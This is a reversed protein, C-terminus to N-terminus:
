RTYRIGGVVSGRNLRDMLAEFVKEAMDEYDADSDMQDVNVIIDGVNIPSGGQGATDGSLNPMGPIYVRSMMDLTNVLSDFLATQYPTLIREKDEVWALGDSGAIGGTAFPIISQIGTKKTTKQSPHPAVETGNSKKLVDWSNVNFFAGVGEAWEKITNIPGNGKELSLGTIDAISLLNTTKKKSDDTETGPSPDGGGGGGSNSGEAPAIYDYPYPTMDANVAEYAKRLDELQEMWEDVYAEAQLKGAERYKASNKKLFNVIYDDGGAIIEEVEDWYLELEGRMQRLTKKWGNVMTEQTAQTSKAYEEDNAQLWAIIEEDTGMIIEHMEDILQQPHEFLYEYYNNIYEMYDELSEVQQDISEQQAEVEKEALDWAMEDRLENIDKQISLAEKRRTPDASIRAYQAELEALKAAKDEEEAMERRKQLQEDLLDREKTLADIQRQSNELIMDREKEYRKKILDLITNETEVTGQLMNEKLAERDKIAELITNRLDIEMKRIAERQEKISETLKDVEATNNILAITYQQHREQLAKLDKAAEEYGADSVKLSEVEARKKELWPEMEDLNARLTENQREIAAREKEYYQIVGQLQGTQVYYSAEASYLSKTHDQIAQIQAMRDLMREVETMGKSSSGGGGGGGGSSAGAGSSRNYSSSATKFPNSGTPKLIRYTGTAHQMIWQGGTGLRGGLMWVPMDQEVQQEEIEWQGTRLLAQVTEDATDQVAILGNMINSFDASSVGTINIFAAENLRNLAETGEDVAGALMPGVQDWSQLLADPTAFGLYDALTKVDDSTLKVGDATKDLATLYESQATVAQEAEKNFEAYADAVSTTYRELGSIAKATNDFTRVSARWKAGALQDQLNKTEDTLDGEAAEAERIAQVLQPYEKQIASQMESTYGSWVEKAREVGETELAAALDNIQESFGSQSAQNVELEANYNAIAELLAKLEESMEEAGDSGEAMSAVITKGLEGFGEASSRVTADLDETMTQVDEITATEAKLSPFISLITEWAGALKVADNDDPHLIVDLANKAKELNNIDTLFKDFVSPQEARQQSPMFAAALRAAVGKTSDLIMQVSPNNPFQGSMIDYLEQLTSAGYKALSGSYATTQAYAANNLLWGYISEQLKNSDLGIIGELANQLKLTDDILTLLEPHTERFNWLDSFTVDEGRNIKDLISQVNDLEGTLKAISKVPNVSVQEGDGVNRLRM